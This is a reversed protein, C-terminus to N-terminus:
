FDKETLTFPNVLEMKLIKTGNEIINFNCSTQLIHFIINKYKSKYSRKVLNSFLLFGERAPLDKLGKRNHMIVTLPADLYDDTWKSLDLCKLLLEVNESTDIMCPSIRGDHPSLPTNYVPCKRTTINYYIKKDDSSLLDGVKVDKDNNNTGSCRVVGDHLKTNVLDSLLSPLDDSSKAYDWYTISSINCDTIYFIMSYINYFNEQYVEMSVEPIDNLEKWKEVEFTSKDLMQLSIHTCVIGLLQYNYTWTNDEYSIIFAPTVRHILDLAFFLVESSIGCEIAVSILWAALIKIAKKEKSSYKHKFPLRNEKVFGSHKRVIYNEVGEPLNNEDLFYSLPKRKEVVTQANEVIWSLFPNKTEYSFLSGFCDARGRLIEMISVVASHIECKFSNYQKDSYEPDKYWSTFSAGKFYWEGDTNLYGRRCKGFDILKLKGDHFVMNGPKIDGHIVGNSHLFDLVSFLDSIIEQIKILGTKYAKIISIGRPMVTYGRNQAICLGEIEMICPHQYKAYANIERIFDNYDLTDEFRKVAHKGDMTLYVIGFSGQGLKTTSRQYKKNLEEYSLLPIGSFETKKESIPSSPRESVRKRLIKPPKNLNNLNQKMQSQSMTQRTQVVSFNSKIIIIM